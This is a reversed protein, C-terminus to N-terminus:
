HLNVLRKFTDVDLSAGGVLLGAVDEIELIKAANEPKVSGGYLIPWKAKKGVLANIKHRIKEHMEQIHASDAVKGTGIAWVPEYAIVVKDEAKVGALAEELEEEPSEGVCLIVKLDDALARLVKRNVKTEGLRRRESHGIMVFRAGAEKIMLTSIEGTFAGEKDEHVNQAGIVISTGLASEAAKAIATFPVALYVRQEGVHEKLQEVFEAAERATKYMKWNGVIMFFLM